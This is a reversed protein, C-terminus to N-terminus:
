KHHTTFYMVIRKNAFVFFILGSLTGADRKWDMSRKNKGYSLHFHYVCFSIGDLKIKRIPIDSTVSRILFSWHGRWAARRWPMSAM